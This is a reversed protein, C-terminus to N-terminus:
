KPGSFRRIAWAEVELLAWPCTPSLQHPPYASIVSDCLLWVHHCVLHGSSGLDAIHSNWWLRTPTTLNPLTTDMARNVSGVRSTHLWIYPDMHHRWQPWGGCRTSKKLSAWNTLLFHQGSCRCARQVGARSRQKAPGNLWVLTRTQLCAYSSWWITCILCTCLCLSNGCILCWFAGRSSTSCQALKATM